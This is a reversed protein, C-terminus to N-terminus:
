SQEKPMCPQTQPHFGRISVYQYVRGDLSGTGTFHGPSAEVVKVDGLEEVMTKVHAEVAAATLEAPANREKEQRDGCGTLLLAVSFVAPFLCAIRISM